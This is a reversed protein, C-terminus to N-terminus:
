QNSGEQPPILFSRHKINAENSVYGITCVSELVELCKKYRIEEAAEIVLYIEIWGIPAMEGNKTIRKFAFDEDCYISQDEDKLTNPFRVERIVGTNTIKIPKEM